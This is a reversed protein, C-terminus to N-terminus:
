RIARLRRRAGATEGVLRRQLSVVGLAQGRGKVAHEGLDEASIDEPLTLRAALEASILVPRELTKCLAELRATTNITDGFYTIKHHDVGIEATVIAGGHLAARLRPVRGYTRLWFESNAEINAVIDFACRVCRANRIGREIPWTIIAADGIYDDIAGKHRIVEASVATFVSGLFQQTHLDGFEEAFATSGVVDIFLFVREEQVPHRYRGTLLSFFVDRGLLERVRQVMAIVTSVTVAYVFVEAPLITVERWSGTVMGASKMLTGSIAFGLSILAFDIILALLIYAPTPLLQMRQRLAPLIMNREFLIVPLGCILAYIVGVFPRVGNDFLLNYAVGSAAVIAAILLWYLIVPLRRM